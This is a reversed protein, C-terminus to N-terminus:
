AIEWPKTNRIQARAGAGQIRSSTRGGANV